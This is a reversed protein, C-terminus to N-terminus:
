SQTEELLSKLITETAGTNKQVYSRAAKGAAHRQEESTSLAQAIKLFEAQNQVSFSGGVGILEKAERFKQFRPGFVVPVGFTAPELTNHIGAGFGGGVYAVQGYQYLRSLMGVNDILLVPCDSPVKLYHSYRQIQKGFRTEIQQLHEEGVEHPALVVRIEPLRELLQFLLEEDKPWTSGAVWVMQNDAFQSLGAVPEAEAAVKAVRDFRTDGAVSVSSVGHSALLEASAADQVFIHALRHLVARYPKGWPKFFVQEPRFIGSVLYTPVQQRFLASLTHWWFEYKVFVAVNPQLLQMLDRANPATDAPLYEVHDALPYNKRLEYGSPSYFTLWIQWNPRAQKFAEILPRGQEFEGVSACHFWILPRNLDRKTPIRQRWGKRGMVWLKAKPHFPAALRLATHYMGLLFSYLLQM